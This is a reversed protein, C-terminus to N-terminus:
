QKKLSKIIEKEQYVIKDLLFHYKPSQALLDAKKLSFLLKINDKGIKDIMERLEYLNLKDINLDHYFILNSILNYESELLRFDKKYKNFIEISINWHNYFHGIGNGDEIYTSPKGIDHFLAALRLYKNPEVNAVVHLIHEYVDYIHWKNNQNFGQCEKLEPILEFLLRENNKLEYYVKNSLLIKLLDNYSM